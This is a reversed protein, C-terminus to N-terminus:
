LTQISLLNSLNRCQVRRKHKLVAVNMLEGRIRAKLLNQNEERPKKLEQAECHRLGLYLTVFITHIKALRNAFVLNVLAYNIVITPNDVESFKVVILSIPDTDLDIKYVIINVFALKSISFHDSKEFNESITLLIKSFKM